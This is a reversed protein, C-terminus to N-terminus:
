MTLLRNWEFGRQLAYDKLIVSHKLLVRNSVAADDAYGVDPLHDPILDTEQFLYQLAFAIDAVAHFSLDRCLGGSFDELVQSLFDIADTLDIPVEELNAFKARLQPLHRITYELTEPTVEPAGTSILEEIIKM